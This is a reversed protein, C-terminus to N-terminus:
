GSGGGRHSYVSVSGVRSAITDFSVTGGFPGRHFVHVNIVLIVNDPMGQRSQKILDAYTCHLVLDAQESFGDYLDVSIKPPDLSLPLPDPVGGGGM